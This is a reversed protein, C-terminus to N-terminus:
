VGLLDRDCLSFPDDCKFDISEIVHGKTHSHEMSTLQQQAADLYYIGPENPDRYVFYRYIERPDDVVAPHATTREIVVVDVADQGLLMALTEQIDVPRFGRDQTLWAVVQARGEEVTATAPLALVRQFDVLLEDTTRADAEDIIDLARGSIRSLEDGAALFLATLNSAPDVRWLRGPPLLKRMM